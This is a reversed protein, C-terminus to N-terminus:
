SESGGTRTVGRLKEWAGPAHATGKCALEAEEAAAAASLRRSVSVQFRWGPTPAEVQSPPNGFIPSGIIYHGEYYTPDKFILVGFYPIGLRRFTGSISLKATTKSAFGLAGLAVDNRMRIFGLGAGM